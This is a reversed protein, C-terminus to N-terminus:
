SSLRNKYEVPTVYGIGGHIRHNNYWNIYDFLQLKLEEITNFISGNIFETKMTKYTAEAVANDYPNGPRSLSRTINFTTLLEEILKNKFENGRDTHFLEVDNLNINANAFAKYVLEATKNSGVSYGIIERNFLDVLVCIYHWKNAVKVYTLDSVVVELQQKDNFERNVLNEVTDNNVKRKTPKFQQITYKSVLGHKDMIRRIKRKSIVFGKDNLVKKIKLAGYINKSNKFASIIEDELPDAEVERELQKLTDYYTSRSIDLAKCM